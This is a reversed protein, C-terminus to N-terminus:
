ANILIRDKLTSSRYSEALEDFDVLDLDSFETHDGRARSGFVYVRAGLAQLPKIALSQVTQWDKPRLGFSM